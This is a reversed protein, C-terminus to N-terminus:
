QLIEVTGTFKYSYMALAQDTNGEVNSVTDPIKDPVGGSLRITNSLINGQGDGLQKTFQCALLVFAAPNALYIAQIAILRKHTPSGRLIRLVLRSIAGNANVSYISNGGKGTKVFSLENPYSLEGNDGDGFDNIVTLPVTFPGFAILDNGTLTFSPM